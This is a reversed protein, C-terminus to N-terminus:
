RDMTTVRALLIYHSWVLAVKSYLVGFKYLSFAGIQGGSSGVTDEGAEGKGREGTGVNPDFHYAHEPSLLRTPGLVPLTVLHGFRCKM